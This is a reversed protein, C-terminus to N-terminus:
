SFTNSQQEIIKTQIVRTLHCQQIESKLLQWQSTNQLEIYRNCLLNLHCSLVYISHKGSTTCFVCEMRCVCECQRRKPTILCDMRDWLGCGLSYPTDSLLPLLLWEMNTLNHFETTFHYSRTMRKGAGQTKITQCPLLSWLPLLLHSENM